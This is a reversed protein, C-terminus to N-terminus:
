NKFGSRSGRPVFVGAAIAEELPTPSRPKSAGTPPAHEVPIRNTTASAPRDALQKIAHGLQRIAADASQLPGVTPTASSKLRNVERRADGAGLVARRALDGLDEVFTLLVMQPTTGRTTESSAKFTADVLGEAISEFVASIRTLEAILGITETVQLRARLIEVHAQEILRSAQSVASEPTGPNAPRGNDSGGFGSHSM